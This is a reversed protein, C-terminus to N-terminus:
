CGGGGSGKADPGYGPIMRCVSCNVDKWARKCVDAPEWCGDNPWCERRYMKCAPIAPRNKGFGDGPGFYIAKHRADREYWDPVDYYRLGENSM